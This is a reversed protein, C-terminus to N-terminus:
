DCCILQPDFTNSLDVRTVMVSHSRREENAGELYSIMVHNLALM